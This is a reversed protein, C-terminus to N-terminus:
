KSGEMLKLIGQLPIRLWTPRNNLECGLEHLAKNILNTELLIKLEKPTKPLFEGKQTGDFYAKLFVVTTWHTWFRAWPELRNMAEATIAGAEVQEFLAAYSAYHFSRLMGAVDRIPTRKLRRETLTRATESEFDIILFDKGTHLVQGLHYDGHVRTRMGTIRLDAIARLRKLIDAELALVRDADERVSPPVNKVGQRLFGLNQVALNRMSQFLSRQYFPNFPEPIFDKEMDDGALCLHMAATREGLLRASEIYTGLRETVVIPLDSGVMDLPQGEVKPVERSEQPLSGVREYFRGLADLTFEWADKCNAAFGSLIALSTETGDKARYELAGAMPPVHPFDHEALFRNIELDPNVGSELRRFTKLIFKDGFLIASNSQEARSLLPELPPPNNGQLSRFAALSFGKVEGNLGKLVRRRGVVDLLSNAFVRSGVADYVVGEVNGNRLQLRTVILHPRESRLREAAEGTAFAVPLFYRDPDGHVYAVDVFLIFSKEDAVTLSVVESIRISKIERTKGGFWRRAQIYVQIRSELHQRNLDELVEEWNEEASLPQSEPAPGKATASVEAESFRPTLSFWYFAHPGLTLLYPKDTIPPFANRGFMEVPVMQQFASLNLEVAQVFRSLNCVM